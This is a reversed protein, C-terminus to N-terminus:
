EAPNTADPGFLNNFWTMQRFPKTWANGQSDVTAWSCFEASDDVYNCFHRMYIWRYRDIRKFFKFEDVNAECNWFENRTWKALQWWLGNMDTHMDGFTYSRENTERRKRGNAAKNDCRGQANSLNLMLKDVDREFNSKIRRPADSEMFAEKIAPIGNEIKAFIEASVTPNWWDEYGNIFGPQNAFAREDAPNASALAVLAATLKM